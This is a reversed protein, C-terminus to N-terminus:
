PQPPDRWPGREHIEEGDKRWFMSARDPYFGTAHCSVPSSPTKQLLSVSPPVTRLLYSEGYNVYKKLWESCIHTLYNKWQKVAVKENDWRNKTIVAQPTPAIWTETKLDFSIFDKGDYGHQDYGDVEDTEDDWECGYVRQAIHVGGSQNFRQQATKINAKFAQQLRLCYDTEGQLYQPNHVTVQNMWAQKLDSRRTDSDFYIIQVEDVMGVAVFEPFNPVQSFGTYVYKLSHTVAAADQVGLFILIQLLILIMM